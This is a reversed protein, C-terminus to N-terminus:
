HEKATFQDLDCEQKAFVDEFDRLLQGLERARSEDLSDKSRESLDQLHETIPSIDNTSPDSEVIHTTIAEDSGDVREM